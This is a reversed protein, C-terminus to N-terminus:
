DIVVCFFICNMSVWCYRSSLYCLYHALLHDHHESVSAYECLVTLHLFPVVPFFGYTLGISLPRQPQRWFTTIDSPLYYHTFTIHLRQTTKIYTIDNCLEKFNSRQTQLIIKLVNAYSKRWRCCKVVNKHSHNQRWGGGGSQLFGKTLGLGTTGKKCKVTKSDYTRYWRM